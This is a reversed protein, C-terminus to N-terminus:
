KWDREYHLTDTRPCYAAFIGYGNEINSYMQIPDGIGEFIDSERNRVHLIMYKTYEHFQYSISNFHVYLDHSNYTGDSSFQSLKYYVSVLYEQGNFFNDSFPISYPRYELLDTYQLTYDNSKEFLIYRPNNEVFKEEISLLYYNKQSSNDTFRIFLENKHAEDLADYFANLEFYEESVTVPFPATDTASVEPFDPHKVKISYIFGSKAKLTQSNYFGNESYQLNEAFTGNEYIECEADEIIFPTVSDNVSLLKGVRVKFLSDPSFFCNVVLRPEIDPFDLELEKQCSVATLSFIIFIYFLKKM